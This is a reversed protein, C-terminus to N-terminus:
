HDRSKKAEAFKGFYILDHPVGNLLEQDPRVAELTMGAREAIKMMGVNCRMTGATVKRCPTNNLLWYILTNWADQGMGSGWVRREGLMIGVDVTDHHLAAYATMTGICQRDTQQIIKIFLHPSHAFSNVYAICSENTHRIFRQNSYKVVEPDNLWSIYRDSIDAETFLTLNVREGLLDNSFYNKLGLM